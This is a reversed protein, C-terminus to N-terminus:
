ISKIWTGKKATRREREALLKRERNKKYYDKFYDKRKKNFDSDYRIKRRRAADHDIQDSNVAESGGRVKKYEWIRHLGHSHFWRTLAGDEFRTPHPNVARAMGELRESVRRRADDRFIFYMRDQETGFRLAISRRRGFRDKYSTATSINVVQYEPVGSDDPRFLKPYERKLDPFAKTFILGSKRLKSVTTDITNTSRLMHGIFDKNSSSLNGNLTFTREVFENGKEM